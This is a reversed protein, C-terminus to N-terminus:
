VSRTQLGTGVPGCGSRIRTILSPLGPAPDIFNAVHSVDARTIPWPARPVTPQLDGEHVIKNRRNVILSLQQRLSASATTVTQATAGMRLAVENWLQFPSVLRVGDAIDDPYQYTIRSLDGQGFM